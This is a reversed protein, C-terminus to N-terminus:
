GDIRNLVPCHKKSLNRSRWMKWLSITIQGSRTTRSLINPPQTTRPM